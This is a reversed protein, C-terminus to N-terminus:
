NGNLVRAILALLEAGTFPKQLTAAVGFSKALDLYRSADVRGGGSTAIVRLEPHSRRMALITEVGDKEPMLMDTIVLDFATKKIAALGGFGDAATAVEYGAKRLIEEAMELLEANDDILLIKAM